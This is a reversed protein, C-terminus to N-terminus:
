AAFTIHSSKGYLRLAEQEFLLSDQPVEKIYLESGIVMIFYEDVFKRLAMLDSEDTEFVWVMKPVFGGKIEYQTALCYATNAPVKEKMKYIRVM